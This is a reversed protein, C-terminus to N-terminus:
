INGQIASAYADIANQYTTGMKLLEYRLLGTVIVVSYAEYNPKTFDRLFLVHRTNTTTMGYLRTGYKAKIEDYDTM